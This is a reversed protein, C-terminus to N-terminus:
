AAKSTRQLVAEREPNLCVIPALSWNRINGSWREPHRVRAAKYLEIHKRLLEEAEASSELSNKSQSWM